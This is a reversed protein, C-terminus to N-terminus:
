NVISSSDDSLLHQLLKVKESEEKIKAEYEEVIDYMEDATYMAKMKDQLAIIESQLDQIIRKHEPIFPRHVNSQVDFSQRRYELVHSQKSIQLHQSPLPKSLVSQMRQMSLKMQRINVASQISRALNLLMKGSRHSVSLIKYRDNAYVSKSTPSSFNSPQEYQELLEMFKGRMPPPGPESTNSYTQTQTNVTDLENEVPQMDLNSTGNIALADDPFSDLHVINYMENALPDIPSASHIDIIINLIKRGYLRVIPLQVNIVNHLACENNDLTSQGTRKDILLNEEFRDLSSMNGLHLIAHDDLLLHMANWKFSKSRKPLSKVLFEERFLVSRSPFQQYELGSSSNTPLPPPPM